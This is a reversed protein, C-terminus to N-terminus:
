TGSSAVPEAGSDKSKATAKLQEPDLEVLPEVQWPPVEFYLDSDSTKLVYSDDKKVLSYTLKNGNDLTIAIHEATAGAFLSSVEAPNFIHRVTFGTVTDVLEGVKDQDLAATEPETQEWIADTKKLVIKRVGIETLQHGDIKVLNKDIWDDEATSMEFDSIAITFVAKEGSKRVHSQRLGASTGLYFDAAVDQQKKVIVHRNFDDDATAFRRASGSSTAVALGTRAKALKELLTNVMTNDVPVPYDRDIFWDSNKRALALKNGDDDTITLSTVDGQSFRSFFSDPQGVELGTPRTNLFLTLGVQIVLLIAAAYTIKKIM